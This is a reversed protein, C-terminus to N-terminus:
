PSVLSGLTRCLSGLSATCLMIGTLSNPYVAPLSFTMEAYPCDRSYNLIAWKSITKPEFLRQDVVNWSGDTPPQYCILMGIVINEITCSVRASRDGGYMITPPPLEIAEVELPRKDVEVGADRLFQSQDYGLDKFYRTLGCFLVSDFPILCVPGNVAHEIESLKNDPRLEAFKLMEPM